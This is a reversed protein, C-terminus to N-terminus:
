DEGGAVFGLHRGSVGREVSVHGAAECYDFVDGLLENVLEGFVAVADVVERRYGLGDDVFRWGGFQPGVLEIDIREWRVVLEIGNSRAYM